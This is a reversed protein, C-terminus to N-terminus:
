ICSTQSWLRPEYGQNISGTMTGQLQWLWTDCVSCSLVVASSALLGFAGKARARVREVRKPAMRTSVECQRRPRHWFATDQIEPSLELVIVEGKSSKLKQGRSLAGESCLGM